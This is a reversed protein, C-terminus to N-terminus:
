EIRDVFRRKLERIREEATQGPKISEEHVCTDRNFVKLTAASDDVHLECRWRGERWFPSRQPEKGSQQHLHGLLDDIQKQRQWDSSDHNM